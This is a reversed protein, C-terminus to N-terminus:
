PSSSLLQPKVGYSYDGLTAVVRYCMPVTSTISGQATVDMWAGVGTFPSWPGSPAPAWEVQYNYNTGDNLTNFTLRGTSDFSQIVLDDATAAGCALLVAM